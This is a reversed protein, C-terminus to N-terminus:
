ENTNFHISLLSENFFDCMVREGKKLEVSTLAARFVSCKENTYKWLDKTASNNEMTAYLKEERTILKKLKPRCGPNNVFLKSEPPLSEYGKGELVVDSMVKPIYVPVKTGSHAYQDELVYGPQSSGVEFNLELSSLM